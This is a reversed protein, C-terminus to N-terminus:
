RKSKLFKLWGGLMKGTEQLLSQIHVYKQFNIILLDYSLRIFMKLLENKSIVLLLKNEKLPNPLQNLYFIDSAIETVLKDIKEGLTYREQKPFTKLASHLYKYLQYYKAIISINLENPNDHYNKM